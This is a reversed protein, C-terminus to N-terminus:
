NKPYSSRTQSAPCTHWGELFRVDPLISEFEFIGIELVNSGLVPKHHLNKKKHSPENVYLM